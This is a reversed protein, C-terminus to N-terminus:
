ASHKPPRKLGDPQRSRLSTTLVEYKSQHLVAIKLTPATPLMLVCCYGSAHDTDQSPDPENKNEIDQSLVENGKTVHEAHSWADNDHASAVHVNHEHGAHAAHVYINVTTTIVLSIVFLVNVARLVTFRKNLNALKAFM